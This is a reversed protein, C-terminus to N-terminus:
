GEKKLINLRWDIEDIRKEFASLVYSSDPPDWLLRSRFVIDSSALALVEDDDGSYLDTWTVSSDSVYAPNILACIQSVAGIAMNIHPLITAIFQSSNYETSDEDFGLGKLVTELVSQNRITSSM